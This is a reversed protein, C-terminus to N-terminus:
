NTRKATPAAPPPPSTDPGMTFNIEYAAGPKANMPARNLRRVEKFGERAITVTFNKPDVEYGMDTITRGADMTRFRGLVDSYSVLTMPPEAIELTVEVANLYKGETSRITGFYVFVPKGPIEDAGFFEDGNALASRSVAAVACLTAGGLLAKRRSISQM